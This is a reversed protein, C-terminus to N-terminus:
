ESNEPLGLSQGAQSFSLPREGGILCGTLFTGVVGLSKIDLRDQASEPFLIQCSAPFPPEQDNFRILVPIGPLVEFRLSLDFSAGDRVLGAGMMFGANKLAEMNGAFTREITKATNEHFYGMLPGAGRCERFSIWASTPAKNPGDGSLVYDMLLSALAPNVPNGRSDTVGDASVCYEDGLFPVRCCAEDGDFTFTELAKKLKEAKDEFSWPQRSM